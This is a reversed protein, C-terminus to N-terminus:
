GKSHKQKIIQELQMKSFRHKKKCFHCVAEAFGKEDALSRIDEDSLTIFANIVKERSCSCAYHIPMEDLVEIDFGNLAKECIEKINMGKALMNTMPELENINKEIKDITTDDAGPLLQILLGGALMVEHTEKNLLM